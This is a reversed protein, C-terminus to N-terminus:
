RQGAGGILEGVAGVCRAVDLEQPGRDGSLELDGVVM